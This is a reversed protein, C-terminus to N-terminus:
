DIEEAREAMLRRLEALTQQVQRLLHADYRALKGLMDGRQLMTAVAKGLSRARESTGKEEAVRRPGSFTEAIADDIISSFADIEDARMFEFLAAELQPIRRVRWLSQALQDVLIEETPSRPWFEEHLAGRLEEYHGPDEGSIVLQRATLGHHLANLSSRSRGEPTKPGTSRLANARNALIQKETAM